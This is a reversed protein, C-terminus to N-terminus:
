ESKATPPEAPSSGAGWCQKMADKYALISKEGAEFLGYHDYKRAPDNRLFSLFGEITNDMGTVLLQRAESLCEPLVLQATERRVEQLRAIPGALSVRSSSGALIAADAWKRQQQILADVSKDYATRSKEKELKADFARRQEDLQQQAAKAAVEQERTRRAEEAARERDEISEHKQNVKWWVAGVLLVVIGLLIPLLNFRPPPKVGM